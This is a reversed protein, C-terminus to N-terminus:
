NILQTSHLLYYVLKRAKVNTVAIQVYVLKRAKANTLAIQVLFFGLKFIAEAKFTAAVNSYFSRQAEFLEKKVEPKLDLSTAGLLAALFSKRLQWM